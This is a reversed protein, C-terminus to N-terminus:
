PRIGKLLFQKKSRDAPKHRRKRPKTPHAYHPSTTIAGPALTLLGAAAAAAAMGMM